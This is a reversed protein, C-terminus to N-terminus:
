AWRSRVQLVGAALSLLLVAILVVITVPRNRRERGVWRTRGNLVLLAVALMPLFAAGIVAYYKQVERWPQTVGLLPVIALALLYARGPICGADVPGARRRALRWTDAFILPVVQWVGLLSTFVAAWAGVLFIWRAAPGVQQELRTALEVILGAGRGDLPVDTAIILMAMGFLATGAYAIGLDIRCTRLAATTTRGHERMWYGYGLVTLTGGVGGILAITWVLGGDNMRPITPVFLGRAVRDFGGGPATLSPRRVCGFDGRAPRCVSKLAGGEDSAYDLTPLFSRSVM